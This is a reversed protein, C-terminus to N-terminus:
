LTCTCNTVIALHLLVETYIYLVGSCTSLYIKVMYKSVVTNNLIKWSVEWISIEVKNVGQKICPQICPQLLRSFMM